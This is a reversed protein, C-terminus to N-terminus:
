KFYRHTDKSKHIQVKFNFDFDCEFFNILFFFGLVQKGGENRKRHRVEKANERWTLNGSATCLM